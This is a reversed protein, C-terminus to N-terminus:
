REIVDKGITSAAQNASTENPFGGIMAMASEQVAITDPNAVVRQSFNLPYRWEHRDRKIEIAIKGFGAVVAVPQSFNGPFGGNMAMVSKKSRSRALGLSLGRAAHSLGAFIAM